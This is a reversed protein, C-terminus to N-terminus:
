DQYADAALNLLMLDLKEAAEKKEAALKDEQALKAAVKQAVPSTPPHVPPAPALLPASALAIGGNSDLASNFIPQAGYQGSGLWHRVSADPQDVTGFQIPVHQSPRPPVVPYNAPPMPESQYHVAAVQEAM